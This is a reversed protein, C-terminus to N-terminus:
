PSYAKTKGNLWTETNSIQTASSSAARIILGFLGGSFNYATGTAFKFLVIARTGSYNGTGQSSTSTAVQTGNLRLTSYPASISALATVVHTTPEPYSSRAVSSTVNTTGASGLAYASAPSAFTNHGQVSFTGAVLVAGDATSYIASASTSAAYRRVGCFTSITNVGNLINTTLTTMSDDSGDSKLYYPFGVSDYTSADAVKQYVPLGVGDNTYRLDAGWIYVGNTGSVAISTSNDADSFRCSAYHITNTFTKTASCRYWGNGLSTITATLSAAKTGITGNQLNFWVNTHGGDYVDLYIWNKGAAKACISQTISLRSVTLPTPLQLATEIAGNTQPYALTATNTGDPATAANASLNLNGTGWYANTFQETYQLLNYKASLTPRSASTTQTAHNGPMAKVSISGFSISKGAGNVQVCIYTTTATAVFWGAGTTNSPLSGNVSYINVINAVPPTDDSKRLANFVTGTSSVLLGTVRYPVGITTSIAQYATGYTATASNTLTAVGASATLTGVGAQQYISWGTTGNSFSGNTILESGYTAGKSKDLILGVPSDATGNGPVHVATTGGADEFMTSLDSPDYWLGQEGASFLSRPSFSAAAIASIASM